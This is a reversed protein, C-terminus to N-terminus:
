RLQRHLQGWSRAVGQWQKRRRCFLSSSLEDSPTRVVNPSAFLSVSGTPDREADRGLTLLVSFAFGSRIVIFSAGDESIPYGQEDLFVHKIDRALRM